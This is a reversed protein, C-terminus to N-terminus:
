NNWQYRGKGHAKGKLFEGYYLNGNTYKEYGKGSRLDEYWEGEYIRNAKYM